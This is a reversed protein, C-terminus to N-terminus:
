RICLVADKISKMSSGISVIDGDRIIVFPSDPNDSNVTGSWYCTLPLDSPWKAGVSGFGDISMGKSVTTIDLSSRGGILPMKGGKSACYDKADNWNMKEPGIAIVWAPLPQSM